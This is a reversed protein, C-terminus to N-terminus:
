RNMTCHKARNSLIVVYLAPPDIIPDIMPNSMRAASSNVSSSAHTPSVGHGGAVDVITSAMAVVQITSTIFNMFSSPISMICSTSNVVLDMCSCNRLVIKM